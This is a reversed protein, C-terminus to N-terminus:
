IPFNGFSTLKSHWGLIPKILRSNPLTPLNSTNKRRMLTLKVYFGNLFVQSEGFKGCCNWVRNICSVFLVFQLPWIPCTPCHFRNVGSRANGTGQVPLGCTIYGPWTTVHTFNARIVWASESMPLSRRPWTAHLSPPLLSPPLIIDLWEVSEFHILMERARMWERRRSSLLDQLSFHDLMSYDIEELWEISCSTHWVTWGKDSMICILWCLRLIPQTIGCQLNCSPIVCGIRRSKQCM